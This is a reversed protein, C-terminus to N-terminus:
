KITIEKFIINGNLNYQEKVVMGTYTGQYDTPITVLDGCKIDEDYTIIGNESVHKGIVVKATVSIRKSYIGLCRQIIIEANEDNVLTVDEITKETKGETGSLVDSYNSTTYTYDRAQVVIRPNTGVLVPKEWEGRAYNASYGLVTVIPSNGAGASGHIDFDYYPRDYKIFFTGTTGEDKISLYAVQNPQNGSKKYKYSTLQLKDCEITDVEEIKVGSLVRSQPIETINKERGVSAIYPMGFYNSAMAGISFLVQRLAEKCTTYPIWGTITVDEGSLSDEILFEDPTFGAAEFIECILDRAIKNEYVDGPFDHKELIKAYNGFELQWTDKAINKYASIWMKARYNKGYQLKFEQDKKKLVDDINRVLVTVDITSERLMLSIPDPEDIIKVSKINEGELILDGSIIKVSM